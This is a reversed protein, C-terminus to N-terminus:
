FNRWLALKLGYSDQPASKREVGILWAANGGGKGGRAGGILVAPTVSWYRGQGPVHTTEIQLLPRLLPGSSLGATLDLKYAPRSFGYRREYAADINLWGDYGPGAQFARGLSLTARTMKHWSSQWHHAGAAIEFALRTRGTRAILPLRAFILTHGAVGSRDNLDFGVTLRAGLGYEGYLGTEQESGAATRRLIGSVSLFGRGDERLWAGPMAPTAAMLGCLLALTFIRHMM